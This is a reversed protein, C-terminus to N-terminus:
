KKKKRRLYLAPKIKPELDPEQKEACVGGNENPEDQKSELAGPEKQKTQGTQEPEEHQEEDAAAAIQAYKDEFEDNVATVDAMKLSLRAVPHLGNLLTLGKLDAVCSGVPLQSLEDPLFAKKVSIQQSESNGTRVSSDRSFVSGASSNSSQTTREVECSGIDDSLYKAEKNEVSRFYFRTNLNGLMNATEGEGYKARIKAITQNGLIVCGGKSRVLQLVNPLDDIAPLEGFEDIFLLYRLEGNSDSRGRIQMCFTDIILKYLSDFNKSMTGARSLYLNGPMNMFHRISFDGDTELTSSFRTLEQRMTSLVSALSDSANSFEGAAPAAFVLPLTEVAKRLEKEDQRCLRVFERMTTKGNIICYMIISFFINSAGQFCWLNKDGSLRHSAVDALVDAIIRVQPPETETKIHHQILTALDEFFNYGVSRVDYPNFLYDKDPRYFYKVFEGKGDLIVAKIKGSNLALLQPLLQLMLQSKGTGTGGLILTHRVLQQKTIHLKKGNAMQCFIAPNPQSGSLSCLENQNVRFTRRIVEDTDIISSKAVKFTYIVASVIAAVILFYPFYSYVPFLLKAELIDISKLFFPASFLANSYSSLQDPSTLLVHQLTEPAARFTLRSSFFDFHFYTIVHAWWFKILTMPSLFFANLQQWIFFVSVAWYSLILSFFPLWGYLFKYKTRKRVLNM